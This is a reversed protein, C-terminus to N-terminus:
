KRRMVVLDQNGAIADAIEIIDFFLAFHKQIYERSHVVARYYNPETVFGDLDSNRAYDYFGRRLAAEYPDYAKQLALQSPGQVSMFLIAGTRTVRALEILWQFQVDEALHTFVSIGVALDFQADLFGTPPFPMIRHFEAGAIKDRCWAINDEDIDM